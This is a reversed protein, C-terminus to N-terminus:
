EVQIWIFCSPLMLTSIDYDVQNSFKAHANNNVLLTSLLVAAIAFSRIFPVKIM